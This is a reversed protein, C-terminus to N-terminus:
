LATHTRQDFEAVLSDRDVIVAALEAALTPTTAGTLFERMCDSYIEALLTAINKYETVTSNASLNMAMNRFRALKENDMAM